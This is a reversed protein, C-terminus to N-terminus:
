DAKPDDTATWGKFRERLASKQVKGASTRPIEAVMEITHPLWWRPFSQALHTTLDEPRASQGSKLVVVAVPCEQWKPHPAAVVAAEAVAPHGMLANELAVSSIWEGGSKILDKARDRIEVFGKADISVIDGTKFWGDETFRDGSDSADYYGNAVWPGRVELEGMSNGNWEVLGDEGRARIEVFPAPLGQKARLAYQTDKSEKAMDSSLNAVTGLPAMETMGWAHVISLGHREQFGRIMSEPVAAGGVILKRMASLDYKRPEADLAQLLGLWITPVGASITVRESEFLELLSKPDLHPGPCVQKAGVMACTFPLGWANAHFMPVVALVTDAERIDLTMTLASALTHLAIARHSYLVGKPRGTTGSTYCMVAAAREDIEPSEDDSNQVSSLLVEYDLMGDPVDSGDGAVIVHKFPARERFKELLGLLVKDVIVVTDGAHNAVYALDDPHLRLNLTHVVAGSSPIGYYAELHRYHNWCLTAVRDGRGVGLSKLAVGLKRARRICDGYTYRQISRDPQRSVIERDGFLQEARRLIAPITLQYDMILGQM